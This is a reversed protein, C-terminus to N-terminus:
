STALARGSPSRACGVSRRGPSMKSLEAVFRSGQLVHTMMQCIMTAQRHGLSSCYGKVKIGDLKVDYKSRASTEQASTKKSAMAPVADEEDSEGLEARTHDLASGTGILADTSMLLTLPVMGPGACQKGLRLPISRRLRCSRSFGTSTGQGSLRASVGLASRAARCTAVICRVSSLALGGMFSQKKLIAEM